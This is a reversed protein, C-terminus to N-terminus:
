EEKDKTTTAKSSIINPTTSPPTDQLDDTQVAEDENKFAGEKGEEFRLVKERLKKVDEESIDKEFFFQLKGHLRMFLRMYEWHPRPSTPPQLEGDTRNLKNPAGNEPVGNSGRSERSHRRAHDRLLKHIPSLSGEDPTSKKSGNLSHAGGESLQMRSLPSRLKERAAEIAEKSPTELMSDIEKSPVTSWEYEVPNSERVIRDREEQELREKELRQKLPEAYSNARKVSSVVPLMEKMRRERRRKRAEMSNELRKLEVDHRDQEMDRRHVLNSNLECRMDRSAIKYQEDHTISTRDLPTVDTQPVFQLTNAM